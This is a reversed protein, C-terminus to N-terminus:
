ELTLAGHGVSVTEVVDVLVLDELSWLWCVTPHTPYDFIIDTLTVM